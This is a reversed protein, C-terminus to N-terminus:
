LKLTLCSYDSRKLAACAREASSKDSFGAFRARYLTSQGKAIKETVPKTHYLTRGASGRAESLLRLAESESNTAGIQVVWGSPQPSTPHKAENRTEVIASSERVPQAGSRWQLNTTGRPRSDQVSQVQAAPVQWPPSALAAARVPAALSNQQTATSPASSPPTLALPKASATVVEEEEDEENVVPKVKRTAPLATATASASISPLTAAIHLHAPKDVHAPARSRSALVYDTKKSALKVTNLKVLERMRQDRSHGTPAGLVAAIMHRGNRRMSTVLNFGSARTYGTKIGDVGDVRGLLKNHNRIHRGRHTFSQKAFYHTYKPFREFLSRGLTAMDRATTVQESDPLGNPNRFVTRSMGLQRAKATMRRAFSDVDGSINEAIVVSVDNASRTILSLIATEVKVTEGSKVGLRTPPQRAANASVTMQSGLDYRGAEMQEFLLYLTMMKTLSAPYRQQDPNHQHLVDGSNADVVISAWRSERATASGTALALALLLATLWTTAVALRCPLDTLISTM